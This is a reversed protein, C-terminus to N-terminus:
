LHVAAGVANVHVCLVRPREAFAFLPEIGEVSPALRREVGVAFAGSWPPRFGDRQDGLSMRRVLLELCRTCLETFFLQDLQRHRDDRDVAPVPQRDGKRLCDPSILRGGRRCLLLLGTRTSPMQPLWRRSDYLRAAKRLCRM